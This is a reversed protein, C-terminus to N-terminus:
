LSKFDCSIKFGFNFWTWQEKLHIVVSGTNLFFELLLVLCGFFGVREGSYSYRFGLPSFLKYRRHLLFCFCLVWGIFMAITKWMGWQELKPLLKSLLDLNTLDRWRCVAGGQSPLLFSRSFSVIYHSGKYLEGFDAPSFYTLVAM